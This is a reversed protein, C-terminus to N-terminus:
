FAGSFSRRDDQARESRTTAATKFCFSPTKPLEHSLGWLDDDLDLARRYNGEPRWCGKDRQLTASIAACARRDPKTAVMLSLVTHRQSLWSAM